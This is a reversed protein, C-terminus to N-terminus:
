GALTNIKWIKQRVIASITVQKVGFLLGLQDQSYDGTAYMERIVSVQESTLIARGNTEGKMPKGNIFRLKTGAALAERQRPTATRQKAAESLKRRWEPSRNRAARCIKEYWEPSRHKAAERLKVRTAESLSGRNRCGGEEINYGNPAVTNLEAIWGREAEDLEEFSQCEQLLEIEFADKGYKRIANHIIATSGSNAACVHSTFRKELKTKTQGVYQKGNLTNTIKYIRM